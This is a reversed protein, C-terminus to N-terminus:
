RLSQLRKTVAVPSFDEGPELCGLEEAFERGVDVPNKQFPSHGPATFTGSMCIAKSFLGASFCHIFTCMMIVSLETQLVVVVKSPVCPPLLCM